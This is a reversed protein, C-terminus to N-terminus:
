SASRRLGTKIELRTVRKKLDQVEFNPALNDLRLKVDAMDTKLQTVDTKLETIDAKSSTNAFGDATLEALKELTMKQPKKNM